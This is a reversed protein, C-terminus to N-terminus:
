PRWVVQDDVAYLQCTTRATQACRELSRQLANDGSFFAWEGKPGIAIARPLDLALFRAYGTDKVDQRVLPLRTADDIAAFGSAPPAGMSRPASIGLTGVFRDLVPRWMPMGKALLTHGDTGVPGFGAFEAKGGARTYADLWQRPIDPGWYADNQAYLWLMPTSGANAKGATALTHGLRHASCPNAKRAVPEGGSGGAFNIGAIVAPHRAGMAAVSAFGGMSQGMVILKRADVWPQRNAFDITALTQVNMVAAAVDYNKQDCSGTFEPDVAAGSDGYGLRTPVFVAVGRRVWYRAVDTYRYRAPNARQNSDRGHQMVVAPFPGDGPPKFHTLVMDGSHAGGFLPQVTVPLRTVTESLDALLAPPQPGEESVAPQQSRAVGPLLCLLVMGLLATRGVHRSSQPTAPTASKSVESVALFM